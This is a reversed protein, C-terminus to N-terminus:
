IHDSHLSFFNIGSSFKPYPKVNSHSLRNSCTLINSCQEFTDSLVCNRLYNSVVTQVLCSGRSLLCEQMRSLHTWFKV